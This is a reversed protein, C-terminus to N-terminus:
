GIREFGMLHRGARQGPCFYSGRRFPHRALSLTSLGRGSRPRLSLSIVKPKRARPGSLRRRSGASQSSKVFTTAFEKGEGDLKATPLARRDEECRTRGTKGEVQVWRTPAYRNQHPGAPINM